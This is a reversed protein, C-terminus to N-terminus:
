NATPSALSDEYRYEISFREEAPDPQRITLHLTVGNHGDQIKDGEETQLMSRPVQRASSSRSGQSIHGANIEVTDQTEGPEITVYHIQLEETTHTSEPASFLYGNLGTEFNLTEEPQAVPIGIEPLQAPTPMAIEWDEDDYARRGFKNLEDEIDNLTNTLKGVLYARYLLPIIKDDPAQAYDLAKIAEVILYANSTANALVREGFAMREATDWWRRFAYLTTLPLDQELAQQALLKIEDRSLHRQLCLIYVRDVESPTESELSRDEPWIEVTMDDKTMGLYPVSRPNGELYSEETWGEKTLAESFQKMPLQAGAPVTFRWYSDYPRLPSVGRAIIEPEVAKIADPLPAAHLPPYFVTPLESVIPHELKQESFSELQSTFKETINEAIKVALKARHDKGLSVGIFDQRTTITGELDWSVIPPSLDGVTNHSPDKPQTGGEVRMVIEQKNQSLGGQAEDAITELQLFFHAMPNAINVEGTPALTVERVGPLQSLSERLLEGVQRAFADNANTSIAITGFAVLDGSGSASSSTYSSIVSSVTVGVEANLPAGSPQADASEDPRSLLAIIVAVVLVIAPFLYKRKM